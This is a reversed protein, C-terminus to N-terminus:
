QGVLRSVCEVFENPSVIRLPLNKNTKLSGFDKHDGTVLFNTRGIMASVIVPVDKDATIGLWPELEKPTPLPIIELALRPFYEHFVPLALPLKRHLNREVEILNYQGTLGDLHPLNLCLLDLIIRPAGKDSLLGSIIVNSDLFVRSNLNKLSM